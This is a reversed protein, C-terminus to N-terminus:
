IKSIIRLMKLQIAKERITASLMNTWFGQLLLNESDTGNLLVNSTTFASSSTISIRQLIVITLRFRKCM